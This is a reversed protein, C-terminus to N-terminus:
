LLLDITITIFTEYSLYDAVKGFNDKLLKIIEEKSGNPDQITVIKFQDDVLTPLPFEWLGPHPSTLGKPKWEQEKAGYDLTYPFLLNNSTVDYPISSDYLFGREQLVSFM